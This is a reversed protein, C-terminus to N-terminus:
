SFLEVVNLKQSLPGAKLKRCVKYGHAEESIRLKSHQSEVFEECKFMRQDHVNQKHEHFQKINQTELGCDPCLFM